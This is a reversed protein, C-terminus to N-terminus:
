KKGGELLRKLEAQRLELGRVRQYEPLQVVKKDQAKFDKVVQQQNYEAQLKLYKQWEPSADLKAKAKAIAADYDKITKQLNAVVDPSTATPAIAAQPSPMPQAAQKFDPAAPQAKDAATACGILALLAIIPLLASLKKM